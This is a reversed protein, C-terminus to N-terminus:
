DLELFNQLLRAGPSASREPHFQTAHFNDRELVAAFPGGYDASAVTRDSVEVAYSHVFYFWAQPDVGALLRGPRQPQLRNWGMHPVPRGPAAALARATGPFVGLCPEEGEESRECLLQLGLCIGLVPQTLEALADGLGRSRLRRMADDSAGVGPLIVRGYRRLADPDSVLEASRGLRELAYRVSALNAGGADVLAVDAAM